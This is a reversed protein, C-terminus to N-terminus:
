RRRQTKPPTKWVNRLSSHPRKYSSWLIIFTFPSIKIHFLLFVNLWSLVFLFCSTAYLRDLSLIGCFGRANVSYNTYKGNGQLPYLPSTSPSPVLSPMIKELGSTKPTVPSGWPSGWPATPVRGKGSVYLKTLVGGLPLKVFRRFDSRWSGPASFPHWHWNKSASLSVYQRVGDWTHPESM